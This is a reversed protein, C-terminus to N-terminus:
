VVWVAASLSAVAKDARRREFDFDIDAVFLDPFYSEEEESDEDEEDDSPEQLMSAQFQSDLSTEAGSSAQSTEAVVNTISVNGGANWGNAAGAVWSMMPDVARAQDPLLGLACAEWEEVVHWGRPPESVVKDDRTRKLPSGFGPGAGRPTFRESATEAEEIALAAPLAVSSPNDLGAQITVLARVKDVTARPLSKRRDGGKPGRAVVLDLVPASWANLHSLCICSIEVVDLEVEAAIQKRPTLGVTAPALLVLAWQSLLHLRWTGHHDPEFSPLVAGPTAPVSGGSELVIAVVIARVLASRLNPFRAALYM